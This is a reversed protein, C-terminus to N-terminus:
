RCNVVFVPALAGDYRKGVSPRQTGICPVALHQEERLIAEARNRVVSTAMAPGALGPGSVVHIPVGVIKCRDNLCKIEFVDSQDAVGCASPLNRAVDAAM